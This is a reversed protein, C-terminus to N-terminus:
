TDRRIDDPAPESAWGSGNWVFFLENDWEGLEEHPVDLRVRFITEDEGPGDVPELVTGVEGAEITCLNFYPTLVPWRVRDGPKFPFPAKSM